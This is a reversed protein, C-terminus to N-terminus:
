RGSEVELNPTPFLARLSAIVCNFDWRFVLGGLRHRGSRDPAVARFEEENRLCRLCRRYWRGM